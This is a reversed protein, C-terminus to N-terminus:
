TMVDIMRLLNHKYTRTKPVRADACLRDRCTVEDAALRSDKTQANTGVRYHSVGHTHGM